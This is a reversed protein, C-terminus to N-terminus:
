ERLEPYKARMVRLMTEVQSEPVFEAAQRIANESLETWIGPNTALRDLHAALARIDGPEYLLGTNEDEVLSPISGVTTAVVPIGRAFAEPITKPSGETSSPLVFVDNRDYVDYIAERSVYGSFTVSDVIGLSRATDKLVSEYEGEGVVELEFSRPHSDLRGMVRLIDQVRKYEVLRGVYLLSIPEDERPPTREGPNVIDENTVLSPVISDIVAAADAYETCMEEGATIVASDSIMRSVMVDLYRIWASAIYRRYGQHGSLVENTVKGRLYLLVPIGFKHAIAYVVQGFVNTTPIIVFEWDAAHEAFANHVDRVLLPLEITRLTWPNQWQRLPVVNLKESVTVPGDETDSVVPSCLDIEALHRSWQHYLSLVTGRTTYKGNNEYLTNANFIGVQPQDSM